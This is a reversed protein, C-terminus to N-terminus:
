QNGARQGGFVAQAGHAEDVDGRALVNEVISAADIIVERTALGNPWVEFIAAREAGIARACASSQRGLRRSGRRGTTEAPHLIVEGAARELGVFSDFGRQGKEIGDM